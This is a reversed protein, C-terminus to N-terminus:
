PGHLTLISGPKILVHLPKLDPINDAVAHDDAVAHVGAVVPICAVVPISAVAPVVPVTPIGAVGLVCTVSRFWLCFFAM